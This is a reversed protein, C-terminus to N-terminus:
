RYARAMGQVVDGDRQKIRVVEAVDQRDLPKRVELVRDGTPALQQLPPREPVHVGSGAAAAHRLHQARQDPVRATRAHVRAPHRDTAVVLEEPDGLAQVIAQVAIGAIAPRQADRLTLDVLAHGGLVGVQEHLAHARGIDHEQM